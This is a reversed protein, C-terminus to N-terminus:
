VAILRFPFYQSHRRMCFSNRNLSLSPNERTRLYGLVPETYKRLASVTSLLWILRRLDLDFNTFARPLISIVISHLRHLQFRPQSLFLFMKIIHKTEIILNPFENITVEKQWESWTM